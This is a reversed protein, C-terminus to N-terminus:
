KTEGSAKRKQGFYKIVENRFVDEARKINLLQRPTLIEKFQEFYRLEIESESKKQEFLARAANECELDTAKENKLTSEELARTESAVQMLEDCMKDYVDFFQNAVDRSLGLERAMVQHQYVRFREKYQEYKDVPSDASAVLPLVFIALLVSLISKRYM